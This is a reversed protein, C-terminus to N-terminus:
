GASERPVTLSEKFWTFLAKLRNYFSDNKKKELGLLKITKVGIYGYFLLYDGRPIVMLHTQMNKEQIFPVLLYRMVTLNKLSLSIVPDSFRYVAESTNEGFTMDQQYIFLTEKGPIRDVLPDPLMRQSGPDDIVYAEKFLTRMRGRSASFYELGSLTSISRLKNYIMLHYLNVHSFNRQFGPTKLFFISEVGINSDLSNMESLVADRIDSPVLPLFRPIGDAEFFRTIEGTEM